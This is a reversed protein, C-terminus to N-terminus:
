LHMQLEAKSCCLKVGSYASRKLADWANLAHLQDRDSEHQTLINLEWGTLMM